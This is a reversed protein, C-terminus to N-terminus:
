FHSNDTATDVSSSFRFIPCSGCIRILEALHLSKDKKAPLFHALQDNARLKWSFSLFPCPISISSNKEHKAIFVRESFPMSTVPKQQIDFKKGVKERHFSENM